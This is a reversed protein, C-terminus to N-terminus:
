MRIIHSEEVETPIVCFRYKDNRPVFCDLSFLVSSQKKAKSRAIVICWLQILVISIGNM